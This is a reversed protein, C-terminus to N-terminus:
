AGESLRRVLRRTGFGGVQVARQKDTAREIFYGGDLALRQSGGAQWWTEIAIQYTPLYDCWTAGHFESEEGVKCRWVVLMRADKKADVTKKMAVQSTVAKTTAEKKTAGAPKKAAKADGKQKAAKADGTKKAAVKEYEKMAVKAANAAKKM